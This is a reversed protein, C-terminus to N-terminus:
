ATSRPFAACRPSPWGARLTVDASTAASSRDLQDAAAPSDPRACRLVRARGVPRRTGRSTPPRTSRSSCSWSRRPWWTSLTRITSNSWADDIPHSCGWCSGCGNARMWTASRTSSPLLTAAARWPHQRPHRGTSSALSGAFVGTIVKDGTDLGFLGGTRGSAGAPVPRRSRRGSGQPTEPRRARCVSERATEPEVRVRTVGM